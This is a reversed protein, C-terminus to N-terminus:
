ANCSSVFMVSAVVVHITVDYVASYGRVVDLSM